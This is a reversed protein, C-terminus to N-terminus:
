RLAAKAAELLQRSLAEDNVARSLMLAGVATSIAALATEESKRGRAGLRRKIDATLLDRTEEPARAIDPALTALACGRAIEDRHAVSLYSEVWAAHADGGSGSTAKAIAKSSRRESEALGFALAERVLEERSAFHAYFGGHTLGAEAMIDAVSVGDIGRERMRRSAIAVIKDHNAKKQAQSHGM